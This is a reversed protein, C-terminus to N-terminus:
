TTVSTSLANTPFLSKTSLLSLTSHLNTSHHIVKTSTPISNLIIAINTTSSFTSTTTAVTPFVTHPTETVSPIP